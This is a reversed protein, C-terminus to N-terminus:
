LFVQIRVPCRERRGKETSMPGYQCGLRAAELSGGYAFQAIGQPWAVIWFIGNVRRRIRSM